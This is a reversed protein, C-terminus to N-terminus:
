NMLEDIKQYFEPKEGKYIGIVIGNKDLIINTPYAEIAFKSSLDYNKENLIQTWQVDNDKIVKKLDSENDNCAIGIFQLKGNYKKYYAKMEPIGRKCPACWSGWFDLCVFKGNFEKLNIQVGDIDKCIIEPSPNGVIVKKLDEMKKEIGIWYTSNRAIPKIIGVYKQITDRRLRSLFYTSLIQDPHNKIYNIKIGEYTINLNQYEKFRTKILESDNSESMLNRYQIDTQIIEQRFNNNEKLFESYEENINSGKISYDIGKEHIKGIINLNNDKDIFFDIVKSLMGYHKGNKLKILTEPFLIRANNLSTTKLKCEFHDNICLAVKPLGENQILILAFTNGLGEIDAEFKCNGVKNRIASFLIILFVISVLILFFRITLKQIRKM